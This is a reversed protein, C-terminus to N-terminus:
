VDLLVLQGTRRTEKLDIVRQNESGRFALELNKQEELFPGDILVDTEQLLADVQPDHKELLQEYTWGSFVTVDKGMGHVLKALEALPAPQCFPEGGSFTMGKLMPNKQFEEFLEGVEVTKGGHFDHTQPNHCGPCHHPCGQTFVTYRIGRGDVISEKVVGAIRLEMHKEKGLGM